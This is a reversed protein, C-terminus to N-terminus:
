FLFSEKAHACIVKFKDGDKNAVLVNSFGEQNQMESAFENMRQVSNTLNWNGHEDVDDVKRKQSNQKQTNQEDAKTGILSMEILKAIM